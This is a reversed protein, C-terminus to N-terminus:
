QKKQITNKYLVNGKYNIIQVLLENETLSIIMIGTDSHATHTGELVGTHRKKSGAGSIFHHTYHNEPEIHQLDHEHGCFYADVKFTDFYSELHNRTYPTKAKRKGGTYLPHHGVAINWYNKPTGQLTEAAWKLQSITDINKVTNQYDVDTYYDDQLPSTDLFTFRAGIPEDEMKIDKYWYRSPMNWRRSITSYEIQAEINGKYDHNGLVVYWPAQLYSGKYIAEFSSQWLPDQTSAVGSPYFNDGTSIIFEPEIVMSMQQMMAGLEAQNYYGQRGWDGIVYFHLADDVVTLENLSETTMKSPYLVEFQDSISYKKESVIMTPKKCGVIITLIIIFFKYM